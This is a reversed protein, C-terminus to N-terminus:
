GSRADPRWKGLVSRLLSSSPPPGSEFLHFALFGFNKSGFLHFAPARFLQALVRLETRVLDRPLAAIQSHYSM